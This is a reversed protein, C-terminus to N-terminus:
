SFTDKYFVDAVFVFYFKYFIEEYLMYEHLIRIIKFSGYICEVDNRNSILFIYESGFKGRVRHMKLIGEGFWWKYRSCEM